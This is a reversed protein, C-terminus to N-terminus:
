KGNEQTEYELVAIAIDANLPTEGAFEKVSQRISRIVEQVDNESSAIVNLLRNRGYKEGQDNRVDLIDNSYFYFSDGKNLMLPLQIFASSSSSGLMPSFPGNIFGAHDKSHKHIPDALGANFTLFVGSRLNLIGLYTKLPINKDGDYFLEENVISLAKEPHNKLLAKKLMNRVKIMYLGQAIGKEAVNAFLVALYDKNILFADCLNGGIEAAPIIEATFKYDAGQLIDAPKLSNRLMATIETDTEVREPISHKKLVGFTKNISEALAYMESSKKVEIKKDFNGDSFENLSDTVASIEKIVVKQLLLSIFAFILAFVIINGIFLTSIVTYDKSYIEDWPLMGTLLYKGCVVSKNLGEETEFVNEWGVPHQTNEAIFLKGSIGIRTDSEINKVDALQRARKIRVPSYGIQVVGPEDPRAVGTYQFLKKEAGNLQPEQVLEFAPNTVAQMFVRSQKERALNFGLYNGKGHYSDHVQSAILKGTADSVHLEDVDLKRRILKLEEPDQLISPKEKILLAFARTKAIASAASMETITQLNNEARKVRGAVDKLNVELLQLANGKAEKRHLYWSLAFTLGFAFIIFFLM